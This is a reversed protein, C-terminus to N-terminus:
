RRREPSKGADWIYVPEYGVQLSYTGAIPDVPDGAIKEAPVEAGLYDLAYVGGRHTMDLQITQVNQPSDTWAVYITGPWKNNQLPLNFSTITASGQRTLTPTTVGSLLYTMTNYAVGSLNPMMDPQLLGMQEGSEGDTHLTAGDVEDYLRDWYIKDMGKALASVHLRVLYNAQLERTVGGPGSPWGTGTIWAELKEAHNRRLIGETFIFLDHLRNSEPSKDKFQPYMDFAVASLRDVTKDTLIADFFPGSFKELAGTVLSCSPIRKGDRYQLGDATAMILDIYDSPTNWTKEPTDWPSVSWTVDMYKKGFEQVWKSWATLTETTETPLQDNWPAHGALTVLPRVMYRRYLPLTDNLKTWKFNGPSSQVDAWDVHVPAYSSGLRRQWQLLQVGRTKREERTMDILNSGAIVYPWRNRQMEHSHRGLGVVRMKDMSVVTATSPLEELAVRVGAVAQTTVGDSEKEVEFNAVTEGFSIPIPARYRARPMSTYPDSILRLTLEYEGSTPVEVTESGAALEFTKYFRAVVTRDRHDKLTIHTTPPMPGIGRSLNLIATTPQNAYTVPLDDEGKLELQGTWPKVDDDDSLVYSRIHITSTSKDAGDVVVFRVPGAKRIFLPVSTTAEKVELTEPLLVRSSDAPYLWLVRPQFAEGEAPAVYELTITTDINSGVPGTEGRKWAASADQSFSLLVLMAMLIFAIRNVSLLRINAM